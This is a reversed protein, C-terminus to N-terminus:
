VVVYYRQRHVQALFLRVVSVLIWEVIASVLFEGASLKKKGRPLTRVLGDVLYTLPFSSLSFLFDGLGDRDRDLGELSLSVQIWATPECACLEGDDLLLFIFLFFLFTSTDICRALIFHSDAGEKGSLPVFASPLSWDINGQQVEFFFFLFFPIM